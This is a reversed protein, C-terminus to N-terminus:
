KKRFATGQPVGAKRMRDPDKTWGEPLYLDFNLPMCADDTALNLSVAVQCNAVKGLTGSYQRAVGVSHPGHKSFGTDDVIWACSPLLERAVHEALRRRVPMPDWPSQGIFQQMAQANGDPLRRAM